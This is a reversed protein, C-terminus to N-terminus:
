FIRWSLEGTTPKVWYTTRKGSFTVPLVSFISFYKGFRFFSCFSPERPKITDFFSPFTLVCTLPPAKRAGCAFFHASCFVKGFLAQNECVSTIYYGTDYAPIISNASTSSEFDLPLSVTDTRGRGGAGFVFLM